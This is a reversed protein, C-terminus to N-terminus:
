ILRYARSELISDTEELRSWSLKYCAYRLKALRGDLDGRRWTTSTPPGGGFEGPQCHKFLSCQEFLAM